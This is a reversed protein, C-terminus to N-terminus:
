MKLCSCPLKLHTSILGRNNVVQWQWLENSDSRVHSDKRRVQETRFIFTCQIKKGKAICSCCHAHMSTCHLRQFPLLSVFFGKVTWNLLGGSFLM